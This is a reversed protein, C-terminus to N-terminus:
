RRRRPSRRSGSDDASDGSLDDDLADSELSDRDLPNSEDDDDSENDSDDDSDDDSDGFGLDDDDSDDDDDDRRDDDDRDSDDDDDDDDSDDDDSDDDDSDDSDDEDSDDAGSVDDAVSATGVRETWPVWDPSLIAGDGPMLETELVTPEAGDIHAVSVTWFWGPYGRLENEFRVTVVGDGEATSGAEAGITDAPTIELLATRARSFDDATAVLERM